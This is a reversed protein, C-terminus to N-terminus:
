AAATQRSELVRRAEEVDDFHRKEEGIIQYNEHGKGALLVIDGEQADGLVREIARRRDMEVIATKGAGLGRRSKSARDSKRSAGSLEVDASLGLIIEDLIKAPDETRPNDSTLYIADGYREAVRAM